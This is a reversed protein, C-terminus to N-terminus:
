SDTAQGRFSVRVSTRVSVTRGDRVVPEFRWKKVARRAAKVFVKPAEGQVQIDSVAGSETINMELDVSADTVVRTRPYVPATRRIARLQSFPYLRAADDTAPVREPAVIPEEGVLLSAITASQSPNPLAAVPEESVNTLEDGVLPLSEDRAQPPDDLNLPPALSIQDSLANTPTTWGANTNEDTPALEFVQAKASETVALAAFPAVEPEAPASEVFAAAPEAEIGPAAEDLSLPTADVSSAQDKSSKSSAVSATATVDIHENEPEPEAVPTSTQLAVESLSKSIENVPDTQVVPATENATPPQSARTVPQEKALPAPAVPDQMLAYRTPDAGMAAIATLIGAFITPPAIKPPIRRLRALFGPNPESAASAIPIAPTTPTEPAESVVLAIPTEQVPPCESAEPVGADAPAEPSTNAESDAPTEVDLLLWPFAPRAVADADVPDAITEAIVSLEPVVPHTAVLRVDLTDGQAGDPSIDTDVALTTNLLILRSRTQPGLHIVETRDQGPTELAHDDSTVHVDLGGDDTLAFEVMATTPKFSLEGYDDEGVHMGHHVRITADPDSTILFWGISQTATAYGLKM